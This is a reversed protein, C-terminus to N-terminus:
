RGCTVSWQGSNRKELRQSEAERRIEMWDTPHASILRTYLDLSQNPLAISIKVRYSIGKGRSCGFGHSLFGGERDRNVAGVRGTKWGEVRGSEDSNRAREWEEGSVVPWCSLSYRLILPAILSQSLVGTPIKQDSDM